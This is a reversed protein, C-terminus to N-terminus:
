EIALPFDEDEEYPRGSHPGHGPRSSTAPSRVRVLCTGTTLLSSWSDAQLPNGARRRGAAPCLSASAGAGTVDVAPARSAEAGAVGHDQESGPFHDAPEIGSPATESTGQRAKRVTTTDTAQTLGVGQGRRRPRGQPRRRVEVIKRLDSDLVAGEALDFNRVRRSRRGCKLRQRRSRGTRGAPVRGQVSGVKAVNPGAGTRAGAATSVGDIWRGLPPVVNKNQRTSSKGEALGDQPVILSAQVILEKLEKRPSVDGRRRGPRGWTM